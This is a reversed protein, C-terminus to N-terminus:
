SGSNEREVKGRRKRREVWTPKKKKKSGGQDAKRRAEGIEHDERTSERAGKKHPKVM